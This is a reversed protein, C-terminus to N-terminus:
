RDSGAPGRKIMTMEWPVPIIRIIVSTGAKAERLRQASDAFDLDPYPRYEWQAVVGIMSLVLTYAALRRFIAHPAFRFCWIVGWLFAMMPFYWYRNGSAYVLSQWPPVNPPVLPSRLSALFIGLGFLTFLKIELSSFRLVYFYLVAGGVSALVILIMPAYKGIGFAGFISAGIVNGGFIRLFRPLNAGLTGTTRTPSSHIMAIQILASLGLIGAQVLSWSHRRFWFFVLVLPALVICFPASLGVLAFVVIDFVRGVWSSPPEAFSLLAVALTLHWQTNTDVVHLEFANPSIIYFLAFAARLSLPGFSKCRQSLLVTVPVCQVLLGFLNMVLPAWRFPVLLSLGAGLRPLTTLYGVNPITLSRLWGGQYAQLYWVAGDEAYFQPHLFLSPLRSVIALATVIFVLTNERLNLGDRTDLWDQRWALKMEVARFKNTM